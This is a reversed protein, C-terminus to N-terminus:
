VQTTPRRLLSLLRDRPVIGVTIGNDVVRLMAAQMEDLKYLASVASGAVGIEPLEELPMMVEFLPTERWLPWPVRAMLHPLLVGVPRGFMEVLYFERGTTSIYGAYLEDLTLTGPVTILRVMAESVPIRQLTDQIMAQMYSQRAMNILVWGILALWLAGFDDHAVALYVGLGILGTGIIRGGTAAM